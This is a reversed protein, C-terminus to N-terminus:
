KSTAQRPCVLWYATTQHESTKAVSILHWEGFLAQTLYSTYTNSCSTQWTVWVESLNWGAIHSAVSLFLSFFPFASSFARFCCLNSTFLGFIPHFHFFVQLNQCCLLSFWSFFLVRMDLPHIWSIKLQPACLCKKLLFATAGPCECVTLHETEPLVLPCHGGPCADPTGM